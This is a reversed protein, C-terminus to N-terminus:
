GGNMGYQRPLRPYGVEPFKERYTFPDLIILSSREARHFKEDGWWPPMEMSFEGSSFWEIHKALEQERFHFWDTTLSFRQSGYDILEGIYTALWSVHDGWLQVTPHGELKKYKGGGVEHRYNFVALGSVISEQVETLELTHANKEMSDFPIYTRV